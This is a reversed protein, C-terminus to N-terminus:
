KVKCLVIKNKLLLALDNLDIGKLEEASIIEELKKNEDEIFVSPFQTKKNGTFKEYFQEKDFFDCPLPLWELYSKWASRMGSYNHTVECSDCTYTDPMMLKHFFDFIGNIFEDNNKRYVFVVKKM